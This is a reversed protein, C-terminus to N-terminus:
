EAERWFCRGRPFFIADSKTATTTTSLYELLHQHQTPTACAADIARGDAEDFEDDFECSSSEDGGDNVRRTNNTTTPAPHLGDSLYKMAIGGRASAAAPSRCYFEVDDHTIFFHISNMVFVEVLADNNHTDCNM